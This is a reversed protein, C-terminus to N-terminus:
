TGTKQLLKPGAENQILDLLNKLNDFGPSLTTSYKPSMEWLCYGGGWSAAPDMTLYSNPRRRGAAYMHILELMYQDTIMDEIPKFM